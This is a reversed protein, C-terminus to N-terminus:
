WARDGREDHPLWLLAIEQVEVDTRTPKLTETELKLQDPAFSESLKAIEAEIEANLQEIDGQIGEIKAEANGVDQQQKFAGSAKNFASAGGRVLGGVGSKRGLVAGLISGLVSAGAQMGASRSEAKEKALQGEATRLKGELTELKKATAARLKEVAADRIERAEHSLRLRFDAESEGPKSDTKLAPSTFIELRESRYLSEAFDKEVQKYNAANMAFGPLPAFGIDAQPQNSLNEPKLPPPLPSEWDIGDATVPHVSRVIRAVDGENSRFHVTGVRLLAPQYIL